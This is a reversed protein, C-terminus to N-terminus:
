RIIHEWASVFTYCNAWVWKPQCVCKQFAKVSQVRVMNLKRVVTHTISEIQRLFTIFLLVIITWVHLVCSNQKDLNNWGPIIYYNLEFHVVTLNIAFRKESVCFSNDVRIIFIM